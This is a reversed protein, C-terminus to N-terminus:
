RLLRFAARMEAAFLEPQIAARLPDSEVLQLRESSHWIAHLIRHWIIRSISIGCIM